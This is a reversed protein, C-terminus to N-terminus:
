IKLWIVAILCDIKVVTTQNQSVVIFFRQISMVRPLLEVNESSQENELLLIAIIVYTTRQSVERAVVGLDPHFHTLVGITIHLYPLQRWNVESVLNTILHCWPHYFYPINSFATNFLYSINYSLFYKNPLAALLDM